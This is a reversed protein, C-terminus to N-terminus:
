RKELRDKIQACFIARKKDEITATNWSLSVNDGLFRPKIHLHFHFVDQGAAIGNSQILNIGDCKLASKTAVSVDRAIMMIRAAVADDLGFVDEVHAKPVVLPHNDLSMFVIVLTDEYIIHSPMAQSIINCFVCESM